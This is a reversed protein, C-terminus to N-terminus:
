PDERPWRRNSVEKRGIEKAGREIARRRKRINLDFHFIGSASKQLWEEKLGIKKAFEILEEKSDALMHCSIKWKFQKNGSGEFLEDVYVAM